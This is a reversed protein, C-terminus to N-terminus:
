MGKLLVSHGAMCDMLEGPINNAPSGTSSINGIITMLM